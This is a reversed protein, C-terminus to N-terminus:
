STFACFENGDPDALVHWGLDDGKPRVLTAGAEVLRDPDARVDWHVRNKVTKAEPVASFAIAGFPTGPVELYWYGDGQEVPCGYVRGWWRAIPEPDPSDVGLEYLRYDPVQDRLFACFEQGDPDACVTWRRDGGAPELIRAGLAELEALSGTYVDLHARNKATKPEPVQNIWVTHAKGPGSLWVSGADRNLSLGLAAAWFRGAQDIDVADICFDKFVALPSSDQQGAM